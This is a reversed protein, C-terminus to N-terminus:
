RGRLITRLIQYKFSDFSRNVEAHTRNYFKVYEDLDAITKLRQESIMNLCQLIIAKMKVEKKSLSVAIGLDKDELMLVGDNVKRNYINLFAHNVMYKYCQNLERNFEFDAYPSKITGNIARSIQIIYPILENEIETRFYAPISYGKIPPIDGKGEQIAYLNHYYERIAKQMENEKREANGESNGIMINIKKLIEEQEKDTHFIIQPSVRFIIGDSITSNLNAPTGAFYSVADIKKEEVDKTRQTFRSLKAEEGLVNEILKSLFPDRFIRAIDSTIITVKEWGKLVSSLKSDTIYEFPFPNLAFKEFESGLTTKGTGSNSLLLYSIRVINEKGNKSVLSPLVLSGPVLSLVRMVKGGMNPLLEEYFSCITEYPNDKINTM